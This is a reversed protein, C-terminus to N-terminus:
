TRAVSVVAKIACRVNEHCFENNSVGHVARTASLMLYIVFALETRPAAQRKACDGLHDRVAAVQRLEYLESLHIM